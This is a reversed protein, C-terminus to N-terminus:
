DDSEDDELLSGVVSELDDEDAEVKKAKTAKKAAKAPKEPEPEPEATKGFGSKKPAADGDHVLKPKTSPAPEEEPVAEGTIQMVESTGILTDVYDQTDDDIFGGYNFQLKPFSADTDFSINTVVCEPPLQHHKLKKSYQNLSKLAAPTVRVLYVGAQPDDAPIVALRKQDACAKTDKGDPTTKSGWANKPCSACVDNLPQAISIDPKIGDLSFCDPAEAEADKNWAKAYYTKSVRPNIGVIVAKLTSGELVTEVGEEVVRFRGGKISIYPLAEGTLGGSMADGLRSPKGMRAQIHAPIKDTPIALETAM